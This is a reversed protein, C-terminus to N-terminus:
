STYTLRKINKIYFISKSLNGLCKYTFYKM